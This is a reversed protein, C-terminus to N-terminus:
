TELSHLPLQLGIIDGYHLQWVKQECGYITGEDFASFRPDTPEIRDLYRGLKESSPMGAEATNSNTTFVFRTAGHLRAHLVQHPTTWSCLGAASVMTRRAPFGQARYKVLTATRTFLRWTDPYYESFDHAYCMSMIENTEEDIVLFMCSDPRKYVALNEISNNNVVDTAKMFRYLMDKHKRDDYIRVKMGGYWM